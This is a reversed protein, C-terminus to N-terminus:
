QASHRELFSNLYAFPKDVSLLDYSYQSRHFQDSNFPLRQISGTTYPIKNKEIESSSVIFINSNIITDQNILEQKEELVFGQKSTYDFPSKSQYFTINKLNLDSLEEKKEQEQALIFIPAFFLFIKKM